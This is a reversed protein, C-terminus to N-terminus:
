ANSQCGPNPCKYNNGKGALMIEGYFGCIKCKGKAKGLYVEKYIEKLDKKTTNIELSDLSKEM